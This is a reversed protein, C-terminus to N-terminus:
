VVLIGVSLASKRAPFCLSNRRAIECLHSLVRLSKRAHRESHCKLDSARSHLIYFSGLALRGHANEQHFVIRSDSIEHGLPQALLGIGHVHGRGALIRQILGGDVGVIEGNEVHHNGRRIAELNAPAQALGAQEKGDQHEGRAIGGVVAHMAEIGACVVIEGLGEFKPLQQRPQAREQTTRAFQPRMPYRDLIQHQVGRRLRRRAASPLNRQRRFLVRQEFIQSAIRATHDPAFFNGLMHPVLGEVWEGIGDFHVYISQPAFNILARGLRQNM